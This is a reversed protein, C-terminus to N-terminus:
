QGPLLYGSFSFFAGFMGGVSVLPPTPFVLGTQFSRNYSAASRFRPHEPDESSFIAVSQTSSEYDTLVFVWGDPITIPLPTGSIVGDLYGSIPQAGPPLTDARVSASAAFAMLALLKIRHNTRM